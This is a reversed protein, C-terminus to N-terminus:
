NDAGVGVTIMDAAIVANLLFRSAFNGQVLNSFIKNIGPILPGGPPSVIVLLGLKKFAGLRQFITLSYSQPGMFKLYNVGGTMSGVADHQVVALLFDEDGGVGEPLRIHGYHGQPDFPAPGQKVHLLRQLLYIAKIHLHNIRAV